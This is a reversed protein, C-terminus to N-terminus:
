DRRSAAHLVADTDAFDRGTCLIPLGTRKHVAYVMLDGFNLPGGGGKGWRPIAADALHADAATFPELTLTSSLAHALMAEAEDHISRYRGNTVRKLEVLAPAPLLGDGRSIAEQLARAHPEHLLIALFASTDVIM